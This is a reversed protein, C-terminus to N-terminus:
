TGDLINQPKSPKRIHGPGKPAGGLKRQSKWRALLGRWLVTFVIASLGDAVLRTALGRLILGHLWGGDALVTNLAGSYGLSVDSTQVITKLVKIPNSSVVAAFSSCLGIVANRAHAPIRPGIPLSKQLFNHMLFFPYFAVISGLAIGFSGTYRCAGLRDCM